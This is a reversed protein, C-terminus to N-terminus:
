KESRPGDVEESQGEPETEVADPALDEEDDIGLKDEVLPESPIEDMPPAGPKEPGQEEPGESESEGDVQEEAPTEYPAENVVGPKEDGKNEVPGGSTDDKKTELEGRDESNNNELAKEEEPVVEKIHEVVEKEEEQEAKEVAEEVEKQKPVVTFTAVKEGEELRIIRVGQTNRGIVSIDRVFTRIAQGGSSMVIVEDEDDVARIGIVDGNRGETKINIVGSGGRSQLRYEDMSTRKGYGMETITLLSPKKCAAVGVVADGKHKLRIGRVGQGTRGIERAQTESFKIAQGKRTAIVINQEGETKRVEVLRDGDKLTIARIGGKRVNSFKELGIRKLTGNKTGMVLFEGSDFRDVSICSTVKEEKLDLLSVLTKGTAYRSSEPVRYVKLWFLRGHDTFLLLYNHNRTVIVDQVFDEDKTGTGVVGKGGRHQARYEDLGVRKVYGRSSITVVVSDNPILEEIELDGEFDTIETRREDGYKEKVELLEDKIIQLIKGMDALVEKLWKIKRLLEQYETEIKERELAILKSLRMELIANAQIESLSYREMLGARAAAVDKSARLFSVVDDINELAIRLGELVHAREEAKKLEFQCRRTVIEKRFEIFSSIIEFLTMVKPQKGDLALNIIGFTNQLPTHVYLQNLTVDANAGKKLEIVVEMGDKDSHDQIGSIGEVKKNKVAEVIGEIVSTKTIQYPIETIVIRNKKEDINARGRVRIIGRGSTYAKMIGGRGVILGGTPFDPGKVIGMLGSEDAGDIVAITGDVVEGLNHPPINTAMGVAIGSSGNVLLNPVRSPLVTPEKTTGDFNDIWDVTEKDIDSIVDNSVKSLRVETYRMAAPSDGDISGMNGHGDVLMYRLSFPQAMRVLADYIAMDGHPHFYGLTNGVVRASKKHPKDSTNGMQHMSYLIRRHVPKLGDRVDPIARGVIVSMAYDLYSERMDKEIPKQIITEPM